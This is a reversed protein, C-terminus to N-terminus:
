LPKVTDNVWDIVVKVRTLQRLQPHVLMWIERSVPIAKEVRVLDVDNDGVVTPLLSKGLGAKVCALIVEADNALVTTATSGRIEQQSVWQAQPLDRMGDEYGIWPLMEPDVKSSHYVAYDLKGIRRTLVNLEKSPRALRIAIDSERKSLSLDRPEAILEVSLQPHKVCLQYLSPVLIHNIVLPVATLRVTGAARHDAGAVSNQMHQAQQEIQEAATVVTEGAVTSILLGNVREFVQVALQREVQALRRSVTTENVMLVRAAAALSKHRAIALVYRLDDWNLAQLKANRNQMIEYEIPM